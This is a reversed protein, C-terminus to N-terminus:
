RQAANFTLEFVTGEQGTFSIKGDIRQALSSVLKLGFGTSNQIEFGEPLGVGNDAIKLFISDNKKSLFLKIIGDGGNMFAYKLTNTILENIIIGVSLVHLPLLFYLILDDHV